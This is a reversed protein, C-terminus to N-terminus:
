FGARMRAGSKNRFWRLQLRSYEPAGRRPRRRKLTSIEREWPIRFSSWVLDSPGDRICPREAAPGRQATASGTPFPASRIAFYLCTCACHPWENIISYRSYCSNKSFQANMLPATDRYETIKQAKKARAFLPPQERLHRPCGVQFSPRGRPRAAQGGICVSASM